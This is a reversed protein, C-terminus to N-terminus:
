PEKELTLTATFPPKLAAATIEGSRESGLVQLGFSDGSSQSSRRQFGDTTMTLISVHHDCLGACSYSFYMRLTNSRIISVPATGIMAVLASLRSPSLEMLAVTAWSAYSYSIGMHFKQAATWGRGS